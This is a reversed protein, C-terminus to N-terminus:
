CFLDIGTHSKCANISQCYAVWAPTYGRDGTVADRLDDYRRVLDWGRVTSGLRGGRDQYANISNYTKTLKAITQADTM